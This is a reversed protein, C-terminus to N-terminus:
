LFETFAGFVQVGEEYYKNLIVCSLYARIRLNHLPVRATCIKTAYNKTNLLSMELTTNPIFFHIAGRV